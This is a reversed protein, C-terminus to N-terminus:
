PVNRDSFNVLVHNLSNVNFLNNCVCCKFLYLEWLSVDNEHLGAVLFTLDVLVTLDVLFNQLGDSKTHRSYCLWHGSLLQFYFYLFKKQPFCCNELVNGTTKHTHRDQSM